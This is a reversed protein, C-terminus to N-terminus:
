GAGKGWGGRGGDVRKGAKRTQMRVSGRIGKRGEGLHSCSLQIVEENIEKNEHLTKLIVETIENLM